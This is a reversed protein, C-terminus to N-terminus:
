DVSCGEDRINVSDVKYRGLIANTDGLAGFLNLFGNRKITMGGENLIGVNRPGVVLSEGVELPAQDADAFCVGSFFIRGAPLTVDNRSADEPFDLFFRLKAKGNDAKRETIPLTAWCGGEVPVRVEGRAGVLTICNDLVDLGYCFRGGLAEEGPFDIKTRRGTFRLNVPLLLRAGSAAWEPAMMTGRERGADLTVRCEMGALSPAAGAGAAGDDSTNDLVGSQALLNQAGFGVFFVDFATGIWDLSAAPDPFLFAGPLETPLAVLQTLSRLTIAGLLYSSLPFSTTKVTQTM